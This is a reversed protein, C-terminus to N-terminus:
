KKRVVIEGDKLFVNIDDDILENVSSITHKNQELKAYGLNLINKPNLKTLNNEAFMIQYKKQVILGDVSKQLKIKLNKLNNEFDSVFRFLVNHFRIQQIKLEKKKQNFLFEILNFFRQSNKKFIQIKSNLDFVLIEAAASPTPARLDAVFDIITFDTEHGVASVLPKKCNFVAMALEEANFAALDEISGGGRAVIIVDVDSKDFYKIGEIIERVALYGQVKAPYVIIDIMSNRRQTITIIDQIVAGTSSTVVGIKKISKPIAVKNKQDFLGMAELKSKLELFQRYLLGQGFPEIKTVNFNLRGGKIYYNPSGTVIVQEGEKIMFKKAEFCVCALIANEDKLSFYAMDRVLNYGSVEGYVKIGHLTEESDFIAKLYASLQSVSIAKNEM